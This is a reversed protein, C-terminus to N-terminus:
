IVESEKAVKANYFLHEVKIKIVKGYKTEDTQRYM